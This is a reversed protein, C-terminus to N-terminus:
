KTLNLLTNNKYKKRETVSIAGPKLPKKSRFFDMFRSRLRSSPRFETRTSEVKDKRLVSDSIAPLLRTRDSKSVKTVKM